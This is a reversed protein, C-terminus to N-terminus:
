AAADMAMLADAISAPLHMAFMEAGSQMAYDGNALTALPTDGAGSATALLADVDAGPSNLVEGLIVGLAQGTAPQAVTAEFAAPAPMTAEFHALDLTVAMAMDTGATLPTLEVAANAEIGGLSLAADAAPEAAAVPAVRAGMVAQAVGADSLELSQFGHSGTVGTAATVLPQAGHAQVASDGVLRVHADGRDSAQADSGLLGLALATSTSLTELSSAAKPKGGGGKGGGKGGGGTSGDPLLDIQKSQGAESYLFTIASGGLNITSVTAWGDGGGDVDVQVLGQQTVRLYGGAIVNTGAAVDLLSRIDVRDGRAYDMIADAQAPDSLAAKDLVFTDSGGKGWFTDAGEGGTLVNAGNNGILTQDFHNGTLNIATKSSENATRLVEIESGVALAYSTSALIIDEGIGGAGELVLTSGSSVTYSNGALMAAGGTAGGQAVYAGTIEGIADFVLTYLGSAPAVFSLSADLGAGSDDDGYLLNGGPGYLLVNPDGLMGIGGVSSIGLMEMTYSTGAILYVNVSDTEGAAGITASFSFNIEDGSMPLTEVWPTGNVLSLAYSTVLAHVQGTPHIQDFFVIDQHQLLNDRLEQQSIGHLAALTPLIANLAGTVLVGNEDVYDMLPVYTVRGGMAELAPVVDTRVLADLYQAYNTAADARAQETADLSGSGDRDYKPILGVNAQGLIIFDRVGTDFVQSMEELIERASAALDAYADAPSAPASGTPALERIDNGGITLIALSGAAAHGDVADRFANTQDNLDSVVEDGQYVQAGGYAFNLSIGSPDGAFPDLPLGFLPDDYGYPFVPDTVQGISKNALLDAFTYGDSFRGSFYGDSAYPAGEPLDTLPLSGYFNALRLANGSDVLSDGFVYVRSYAM